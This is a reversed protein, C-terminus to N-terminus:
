AHNRGGRAAPKNLGLVEVIPTLPGGADKNEKTNEVVHRANGASGASLRADASRRRGRVRYSDQPTKRGRGKPRKGGEVASKGTHPTKRGRRFVRENVVIRLTTATQMGGEFKPVHCREIWGAHELATLATSITKLRDIGTAKALRGRTPTVVPSGRAHRMELLAFWVAVAARCRRFVNSLPWPAPKRRTRTM